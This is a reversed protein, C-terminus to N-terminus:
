KKNEVKLGAKKLRNNVIWKADDIIAQEFTKNRKEAKIKIEDMLSPNAKIEEVVKGVLYNYHEADTVTMEMDRILPKNANINEIEVKLAEDNNLYNMVAYAKIKDYWVPDKM